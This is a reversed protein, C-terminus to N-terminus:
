VERAEIIGQSLENQRLNDQSMMRRLKQIGIPKGEISLTKFLHNIGYKLVAKDAWPFEVVPQTIATEPIAEAQQRLNALEKRVTNLEQELHLVKDTLQQLTLNPNM